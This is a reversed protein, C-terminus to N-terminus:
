SYPLKGHITKMMLKMTLIPQLNELFVDPDVELHPNKDDSDVELYAVKGTKCM